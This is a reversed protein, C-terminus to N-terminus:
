KLRLLLSPLFMAVLAVLLSSFVLPHHPLLTKGYGTMGVGSAIAALLAVYAASGLRRHAKSSWLLRPNYGNRLSPLGRAWVKLEAAVLAALWLVVAAAGLKSHASVLHSRALRNKNVVIAGVGGALSATAAASLLVHLKIRRKLVNQPAVGKPSNRAAKIRSRVSITALTALPAAGAALMPHYMFLSTPPPKPSVTAFVVCSAAVSACAAATNAADPVRPSPSLAQLRRLLLPCLLFFRLLANRMKGRLEVVFVVLKRLWINWFFGPPSFFPGPRFDM